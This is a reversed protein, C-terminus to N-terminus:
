GILETYEGAFAVTQKQLTKNLCKPLCLWNLISSVGEHNGEIEFEPIGCPVSRPAGNNM